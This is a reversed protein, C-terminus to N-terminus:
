GPSATGLRPRRPPRRLVAPGAGAGPWCNPLRAAPRRCRAPRPAATGTRRYRRTQGTQRVHVLVGPLHGALQQRGVGLAGRHHQAPSPRIPGVAPKGPPFRQNRHTAVGSCSLIFHGHQLDDHNHPRAPGHEPKRHRHPDDLLVLPAHQEPEAPDPPAPARGASITGTISTSRRTDSRITVMGMWDWPIMVRSLTLM